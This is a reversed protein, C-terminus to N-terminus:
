EPPDEEAPEIAGQVRERLKVLKEYTNIINDKKIYWGSYKIDNTDLKDLEKIGKVQEIIQIYNNNGRRLFELKKTVEIYRTEFFIEMDMKKVGGDELTLRAPWIYRRVGDNGKGPLEIFNVEYESEKNRYNFKTWWISEKGTTGHRIRGAMEMVGSKYHFRIYIDEDGARVGRYAEYKGEWLTSIDWPPGDATKPQTAALQVLTVLMISVCLAKITRM